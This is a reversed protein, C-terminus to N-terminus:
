YYIEKDRKEQVLGNLVNFQSLILPLTIRTNYFKDKQAIELCDRLFRMLELRPKEKKAFLKFLKGVASREKGRSTIVYERELIEQYLGQFDQIIEDLFDAKKPRKAKKTEQTLFNNVSQPFSKTSHPFSEPEFEILQTSQPFNESNLEFLQTSLQNFEGRPGGEIGGLTTSIKSVQPILGSNFGTGDGFSTLHHILDLETLRGGLSQIQNFALTPNLEPSRPIIPPITLPPVLPNKGLHERGESIAIQESGMLGMQESQTGSQNQHRPTIYKVFQDTYFQPYIYRPSADFQEYRKEQWEILKKIEEETFIPEENDDDDLEISNVEEKEPEQTFHQELDEYTMTGIEEQKLINYTYTQDLPNLREKKRSILGHKVLRQISRRVTMYSYPLGQQIQEYTIKVQGNVALEQLKKYIAEDSKVM